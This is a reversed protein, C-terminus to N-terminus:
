GPRGGQKFAAAVAERLLSCVPNQVFLAQGATEHPNARRSPAGAQGPSWWFSARTRASECVTEAKALHVHPVALRSLLGGTGQTM